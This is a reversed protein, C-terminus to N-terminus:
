EEVYGFKRAVFRYLWPKKLIKRKISDMETRKGAMKSRLVDKSKDFEVLEDLEGQLKDIQQKKIIIKDEYEELIRYIIIGVFMIFAIIGLVSLFIYISTTSFLIEFDEYFPKNKIPLMLYFYVGGTSMIFFLATPLIAWRLGFIRSLEKKKKM